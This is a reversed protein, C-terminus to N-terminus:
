GVRGRRERACGCEKEYIRVLTAANHLRKSANNGNRRSNSAENGSLRRDLATGAALVSLEEYTRGNGKKNRLENNNNVLPTVTAAAQIVSSRRVRRRRRSHNALM